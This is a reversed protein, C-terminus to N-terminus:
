GGSQKHGFIRAKIVRTDNLFVDCAPLFDLLHKFTTHTLTDTSRDYVMLKAHDRPHVPSTAILAEPLAYDYSETLLEPSM